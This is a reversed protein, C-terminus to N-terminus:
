TESDEVSHFPLPITSPSPAFEAFLLLCRDYIQNQRIICNSNTFDLVMNYIICSNETVNICYAQGCNLTDELIILQAHLLEVPDWKLPVAVSYLVQTM